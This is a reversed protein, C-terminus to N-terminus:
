KIFIYIYIYVIKKKCIIECCLRIFILFWKRIVNLNNDKDKYVVIEMFEIFVKCFVCIM